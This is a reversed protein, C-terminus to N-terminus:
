RLELSDDQVRGRVLSGLKVLGLLMLDASSVALISSPSALSTTPGSFEGSAVVRGRSPLM